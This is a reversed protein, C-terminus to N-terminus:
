ETIETVITYDDSVLTEQYDKLLIREGNTDLVFEGDSDKEFVSVKVIIEAYM